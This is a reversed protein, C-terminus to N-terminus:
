EAPSCRYKFRRTRAFDTLVLYSMVPSLLEMNYSWTLVDHFAPVFYSYSLTLKWSWQRTWSYHWFYYVNYHIFGCLGVFSSFNSHKYICLLPIVWMVNRCCYDLFISSDRQKEWWVRSYGGPFFCRSKSSFLLHSSFSIFSLTFPPSLFLSTLPFFCLFLLPFALHLLLPSFLSGKWQRDISNRSWTPSFKYRPSGQCDRCQALWYECCYPLLTMPFM